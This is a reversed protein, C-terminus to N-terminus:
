VFFCLNIQQLLLKKNNSIDFLKELTSKLIIGASFEQSIKESLHVIEKETEVSSHLSWLPGNAIEPPVAKLMCLCHFFTGEKVLWYRTSLYYIHPTVLTKGLWIVKSQMGIDSNLQREVRTDSLTAFRDVYLNLIRFFFLKTEFFVYNSVILYALFISELGIKVFPM